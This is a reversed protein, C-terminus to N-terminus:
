LLRPRVWNEKLSPTVTYPGLRQTLACTGAAWPFDESVWSTISIVYWSLAKGRAVTPLWHELLWCCCGPQVQGGWLSVLTMGVSSERRRYVPSPNMRHSSMSMSQIYLNYCIFINQRQLKLLQWLCVVSQFKIIRLSLLHRFSFSNFSSRDIISTRRQGHAM